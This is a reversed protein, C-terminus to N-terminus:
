NVRGYIDKLLITDRQANIVKLDYRFIIRTGIPCHYYITWADTETTGICGHSTAKGLSRPNTTAHIMTGPRIGNLSPELSPVIPMKTVRGDDRKTEEYPQGTELDLYRPERYVHIIEGEGIPTRLDAVRNMSGLYKKQNQGVRVRTTFITDTGQILRLTFEPINVDIRTTKLRSNISAIRANDPIILSDGRHFIIKKRQDYLFSGHSKQIYYDTARLSDLIWPNNHVVTYENIRRNSATDIKDLVQDMFSFYHEITVDAEIKIVQAPTTEHDHINVSDFTISVEAQQLPKQQDTCRILVLSLLIYSVLLLHQQFWKSIHTHIPFIM